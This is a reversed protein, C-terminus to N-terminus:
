LRHGGATACGTTTAKGDTDFFEVTSTYDIVDGNLKITHTLRQM